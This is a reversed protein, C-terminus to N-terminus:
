ADSFLMYSKTPGLTSGIVSLDFTASLEIGEQKLTSSLRKQWNKSRICNILKIVVNLFEWAECFVLAQTPLVGKLKM